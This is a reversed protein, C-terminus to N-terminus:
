QGYGESEMIQRTKALGAEFAYSAQWGTLARLRASSILADEIEIRRRVDPWAVNAVRGRGFVSVINQAIELVSLFEDQHTAFHMHGILAPYSASQYLIDAADEVFLVNRKQEGKGYVTVVKDHHALHIFYNVFGFEPYGKGYPGYLNAFRL